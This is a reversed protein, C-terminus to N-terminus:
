DWVTPTSCPTTRLATTREAGEPFIDYFAAVIHPFTHNSQGFKKTADYGLIRGPLIENGHILDAGPGVFSRSVSGHKQGFIALEVRAHPLGLEEVKESSELQLQFVPYPDTTM